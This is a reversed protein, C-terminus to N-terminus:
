SYKKFCDDCIAVHNLAEDDQLYLRKYNGEIKKFCRFCKNLKYIYKMSEGQM